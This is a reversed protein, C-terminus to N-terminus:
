AYIGQIFFFQAEEIQEKHKNRPTRVKDLYLNSILVSPPLIAGQNIYKDPKISQIQSNSTKRFKTKRTPDM